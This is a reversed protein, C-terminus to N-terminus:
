SQKNNSKLGKKYAIDILLLADNLYIFDSKNGLICDHSFSLEKADQKIEKLTKSDPEKREELEILMDHHNEFKENLYKFKEELEDVKKQLTEKPEKDNLVKKMM